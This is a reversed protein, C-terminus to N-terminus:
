IKTGHRRKGIVKYNAAPGVNTLILGDGVLDFFLELLDALARLTGLTIRM